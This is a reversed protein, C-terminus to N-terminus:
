DESYRYCFSSVRESVWGGTVIFFLAPILIRRTVEWLRVCAIFCWCSGRASQSQDSCIRWDSPCNWCCDRNSYSLGPTWNSLSHSQIACHRDNVTMTWYFSCVLSCSDGCSCMLCTFCEELSSSVEHRYSSSRIRCSWSPTMWRWYWSDIRLTAWARGISWGVSDGIWSSM